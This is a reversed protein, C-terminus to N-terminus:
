ETFMTFSRMQGFRKAALDDTSILFCGYYFESATPFQALPVLERVLRYEEERMLRYREDMSMEPHRSRVNDFAMQTWPDDQGGIARGYGGLRLTCFRDDDPWLEGVLGCLEDIHKLEDFLQKVTDAESKVDREELWDPLVPRVWATLRHEPLLFPIPEMFFTRTDHGSPPSAVETETGAPVYLARSYETTPHEEMDEEHHLFFLLSGDAPLGLGEAQPLAALDVSGIFPLPYEEGPWEEGVPLRPLGGFQGAVDDGAGAPGAWIAFRLQDAFKGAEDAPIGRDTAASLFQEHRDM